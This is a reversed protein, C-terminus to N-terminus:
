ELIKVTPFDRLILEVLREGDETLGSKEIFIEDAELMIADRVLAETNECEGSAKIIIVAGRLRTKFGKRFIAMLLDRVTYVVSFFLALSLMIVFVNDSM